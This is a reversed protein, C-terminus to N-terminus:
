SGKRTARATGRVRIAQGPFIVNKKLGNLAMLRSVTTGNRAAIHSLSEGKRVIHVGNVTAGYREVSPDAVAFAGSIALKTPVNVTTGAGIKTGKLKPNYWRLQTSTMGYAKAMGPLTTAKKVKVPTWASRVSDPLSMLDMTFSETAYGRPVRVWTQADPPTAGRLLHPNHDRLSDIPTGTVLTLAAVATAPPVLVSDYAYPAVPDLRIGYKWPEKGIAAAAILQPVYNSTERRLARTEALAFFQDDGESDGVDDAYRTLGRSIRAPGGNYAAAALYYSGFQENLSSLFRAAARTSKMPDRREDVWWDVRLGVGRATATMFQWMGVAAARSYAHSDYGSEVLGLYYMDEPIGNERFTKRIMPEYRLGRQMWSVITPRASGTFRRVYFEVRDHSLYEKVEIDWTAEVPLSLAPRDVSVIDAEVVGASELAMAAALRSSREPAVKPEDKEIAAPKELVLPKETPPAKASPAPKETQAKATASPKETSKAPNSPKENAATKPKSAVNGKASASGKNSTTSKPSSKTRDPRDKAVATTASASDAVAKSATEPKVAPACACAIVIAILPIRAHGPM